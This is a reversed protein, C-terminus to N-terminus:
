PVRREVTCLPLTRSCEVVEMRGHANVMELDGVFSEAEVRTDFREFPDTALGGSFAIAEKDSMFVPKYTPTIGKHALAMRIRWSFLSYRRGDVGGLEYLEM